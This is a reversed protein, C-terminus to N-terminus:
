YAVNRLRVSASMTIEDPGPGENAVDLVFTVHVTETEAITTTAYGTFVEPDVLTRAISRASGEGEADTWRILQYQGPTTPPSTLCQTGDPTGLPTVCYHIREEVEQLGNQNQDAWWYLHYENSGDLVRRGGRLEKRVRDLSVRGDDMVTRLEHSFSNSRSTTVIVSFVAGAVVSLLGVVVLLEVLTFGGDRGHGEARSM